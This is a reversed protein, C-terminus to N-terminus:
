FDAKANEALGRHKVTVARYSSKTGCEFLAIPRNTCALVGNGDAFFAVGNAATVIPLGYLYAYSRTLQPLAGDLLNDSHVCLINCGLQSFIKIFEPFMLDNQVCVGVRYGHLAYVGAVGGGKYEEGDLVYSMDTIGLLKGGDAVVVSKRILGRSNTICGCLCACGQKLSNQAVAQLKNSKASIEAAFDVRGLSWFDFMAIDAAPLPINLPSQRQTVVCVKMVM